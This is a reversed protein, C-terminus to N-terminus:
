LFLMSFISFCAVFALIMIKMISRYRASRGCTAHPYVAVVYDEPRRISYVVDPSTLRKDAVVEVEDGDKMPMKWLWGHMKRDNLDFEVWDADEETNPLFIYCGSPRPSWGLRRWDQPVLRWGNM